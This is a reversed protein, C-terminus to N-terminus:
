SRGPRYCPEARARLPRPRCTSWRSLTHARSRPTACRPSRIPPRARSRSLFPL